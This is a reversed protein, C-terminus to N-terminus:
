VWLIAYIAAVGLTLVGMAIFVVRVLEKIISSRAMPNRGLATIATSVAGYIISGEAVLVILFIILAIIVRIEGVRKGTLSRGLRELATDPTANLEQGKQDLSIRLQDLKISVSTGDKDISQTSVAVEPFDELATGVITETTADARVLVGRLPSVALLDGRKPTGNLDSVFADVEGSAQVYVTKDVAGTTVISEDPSVAVGIPKNQVGSVARVVKPSDATSSESLSVTVGPQVADDDSAYGTAIALATPIAIFLLFCGSVFALMLLRLPQKKDLKM